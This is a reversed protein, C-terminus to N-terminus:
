GRHECGDSDHVSSASVLACMHIHHFVFSKLAVRGFCVRKQSSRTLLPLSPVRSVQPVVVVGDADGVVVDGPSGCCCWLLEIDAHPRPVAAAELAGVLVVYMGWAAVVLKSLSAFICIAPKRVSCESWRM